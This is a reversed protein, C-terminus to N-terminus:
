REAAVPVVAVAVAGTAVKGLEVVDVRPVGVASAWAGAVVIRETKGVAAAGLILINSELTPIPVLVPVLVPVFAIVSL